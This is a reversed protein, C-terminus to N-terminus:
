CALCLFGQKEERLVSCWFLIHQQGDERVGEATAMPLHSPLLRCPGGPWRWFEKRPRIGVSLDVPTSLSATRLGASSRCRKMVYVVGSKWCPCGPVPLCFPLNLRWISVTRGAARKRNVRRKKLASPPSYTDACGTLFLYIIYGARAQPLWSTFDSRHCNYLAAFISFCPSIFSSFVQFAFKRKQNEVIDDKVRSM